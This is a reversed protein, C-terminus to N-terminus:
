SRRRQWSYDSPRRWRHPSGHWDPHAETMEYSTMAEGVMAYVDVSLCPEQHLAAHMSLLEFIANQIGVQANFIEQRDIVGAADACKPQAIQAERYGHGAAEPSLLGCLALVQDVILYVDFAPNMKRHLDSCVSQLDDIANELAVMGNILDPEESVRKESTWDVRAVDDHSSEESFPKDSM